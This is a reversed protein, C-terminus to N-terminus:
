KYSNVIADQFAFEADIAKGLNAFLFAYILALVFLSILVDKVTM